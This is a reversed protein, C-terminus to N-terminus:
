QHPQFAMITVDDRREEGGQWNKLLLGLGRALKAPKNEGIAELAEIIRRTGLVRKTVEGIQTSLGDTILVFSNEALAIRHSDFQRAQAHIEYGLSYRNGRYRTVKGSHHTVFLDISAGAFELQGESMDLKIVACDLGDKGVAEETIGLQASVGRHIQELMQAAPLAFPSAASIKELVSTTILTMFAGPVGHGTCDFFVLYRAGGIQGVWYFDGGVLDKPQWIVSAEGFLEALAQSTPLLGRQITSAYTVSEGFNRNAEELLQRDRTIDTIDTGTGRYGIFTGKDDFLPKGNIRLIVADEGAHSLSYEFNKFERRKALDTLHAKQKASVVQGAMMEARTKGIVEDPQFGAIEFFRDSIYTFRLDADMEYFWDGSIEAMDKFKSESLQLSTQSKELRAFYIRSAAALKNYTRAVAGIEDNRIIPSLAPKSPRSAVMAQQLLRLPTLVLRQFVFALLILVVLLTGTAIITTIGLQQNRGDAFYRDDIYFRYTGSSSSLVTVDHFSVDYENFSQCGDEPLRIVLPPTGVELIPARYDVCVVGQEEVLNVLIQRASSANGTLVAGDIVPALVEISRTLRDEAQMTSLRDLYLGFLALVMMITLLAVCISAIFIRSFLGGFPPIVGAGKEIPAKTKHKGVM